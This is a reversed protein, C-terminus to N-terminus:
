KEYLKLTGDEKYIAGSYYAEAYVNLKVINMIMSEKEKENKKKM